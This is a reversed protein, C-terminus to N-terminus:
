KTLILKEAKSVRLRHERGRHVIVVERDHRFLATSSIRRATVAGTAVPSEHLAQSVESV